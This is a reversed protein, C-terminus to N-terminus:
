KQGSSFTYQPGSRASASFNPDYKGFCDDQTSKKKKLSKRGMYGGLKPVAIKDSV